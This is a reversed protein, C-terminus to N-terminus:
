VGTRIITNILHQIHPALRDTLMEYIKKLALDHGLSNSTKMGQILRKTQTITIYPLTFKAKPRPIIMKLVDIHTM